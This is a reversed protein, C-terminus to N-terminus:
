FSTLRRQKNDKIINKLNESFCKEYLFAILGVTLKNIIGFMQRPGVLCRNSARLYVQEDLWFRNIYYFIKLVKKNLSVFHSSLIAM